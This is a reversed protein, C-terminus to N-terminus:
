YGSRAVQVIASQCSYVMLPNTNMTEATHECNSQYAFQQPQVYANGNMSLILYWVIKPIM